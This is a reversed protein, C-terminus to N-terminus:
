KESNSETAAAADDTTSSRVAGRAAGGFLGGRAPAEPQDQSRVIASKAVRLVVDRDVELHVSEDDVANVTGFIGANTVVKDGPKLHTSFSAAERQRKQQPRIMVFYLAGMMVVLFLISFLGGGQQQKSSSQALLAILTHSM